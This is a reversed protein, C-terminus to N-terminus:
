LLKNHYEHYFKAAKRICTVCRKEPYTYVKITGDKKKYHQTIPTGKSPNGCKCTM